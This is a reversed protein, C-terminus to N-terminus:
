SLIRYGIGPVTLLLKPRSPDNEIKERLRSVHVNVTRESNLDPTHGWVSELIQARSLVQGPHRALYVLLRFETPTLNLSEDGRTVLGTSRNIVLDQVFLMEGSAASFEGYARRLLARTRSILERNGFPKTLYDDAGMELGLVKDIEDSRVTLMLIPQTIGASRMQRCYDFGSGDPLRVDLIILDPHHQRTYEVGAEGHDKWTAKFGESELLAKLSKAVGPDDEILLIHRHPEM